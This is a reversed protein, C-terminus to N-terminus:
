YRQDHGQPQQFRVGLTYDTRPTTCLLEGRHLPRPICSERKVLKRASEVFPRQVGVVWLQTENGAKRGIAEEPLNM